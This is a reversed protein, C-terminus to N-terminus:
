KHKPQELEQHALCIGLILAWNIKNGWPVEISSITVSPLEHNVLLISIFLISFDKNFLLRRNQKHSFQLEFTKLKENM